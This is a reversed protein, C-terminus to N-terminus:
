DRSHKKIVRYGLYSIFVLLILGTILFEVPIAVFRIEKTLVPGSPSLAATLKATYVGLLFKESWVSDQFLRDSNSLVNVSALDLSGVSQGFMNKILITGTPTIFNSSTNRIRAKFEVPGHSIVSPTSFEKILGSPDAQQGYSLLVNIGTSQDIRVATGETSEDETSTFLITFYYDQSNIRAGNFVFKIIKKQDPALDIKSVPLGNELLSVNKFLSIYSLDPNDQPIPEGNGAPSPIFPIIAITCSANHDSNNKLQIEKVIENSGSTKISILSPSASLNFSSAFASKPM